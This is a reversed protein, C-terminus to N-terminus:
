KYGDFSAPYVKGQGGGKLFLTAAGKEEVTIEQTPWPAKPAEHWIIYGGRVM